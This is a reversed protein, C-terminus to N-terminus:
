RPPILRKLDIDCVEAICVLQWVSTDVSGTEHRSLASQSMGLAKACERQELGAQDRATKIRQGLAWAFERHRVRAKIDVAM